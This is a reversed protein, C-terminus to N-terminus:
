QLNRIVKAPNGGVVSYPPVDKTVVANAGIIAGNGITVNPLITAKDGIWVNSGIIVPGKSILSRNLPKISAEDKIINGHSNDTITVYKGLLTGSGIHISNCATIHANPNIIVDDEIIIEPNFKQDQYNDWATLITGRGISVRNGIKIYKAGGLQKLKGLYVNEGMSMFDDKIARFYLSNSIRTILLEIQKYINM